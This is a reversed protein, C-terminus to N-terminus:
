FMQVSPLYSSHAPCSTEPLPLKSSSLLRAATSCGSGTRGTLAIVSFKSVEEFTRDIAQTVQISDISKM